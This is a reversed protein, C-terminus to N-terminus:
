YGIETDKNQDLSTYDDNFIPELEQLQMTIQYSVMAGDTFTAYQGEPTYSVNFSQLACEKFKNLFKHEENRHLYQIQFTHPAKLFLNSQSRQPSMGQKFFRIISRIIKSETESRSALKFTFTFPRLTPAEFLLELNPNLIAGETRSLLKAGPGSMAAAAFAAALGTKVDNTGAAPATNAIVGAGASFGQKITTLAVNALVAEGANMSDGGWTVANSDIIGNPIPLTVVGISTRDKAREGFGSINIKTLDFAKPSYKLMSFQIVDQKGADLKEPYKLTPFQNRTNVNSKLAANLAAPDAPAAPATVGGTPDGGPEAVANALRQGPKQQNALSKYADTKKLNDFDKNRQPDTGTNLQAIDYTATKIQKNLTDLNKKGAPTSNDFFRDYAAQNKIDIKSNSANFSYIINGQGVGALGREYVDYNGNSIRTNVVVEAGTFANAATGDSFKTPVNATFVDASQNQDKVTWGQRLVPAM